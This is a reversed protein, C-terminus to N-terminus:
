AGERYFHIEIGATQAEELHHPTDPLISVREGQVLPHRQGQQDVFVLRGETVHLVGSVDVKLRHDRLLGAPIEGPAFRLTKYPEVRM